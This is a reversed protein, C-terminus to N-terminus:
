GKVLAMYPLRVKRVESGVSLQITVVGSHEGPNKGIMELHLDTAKENKFIASCKLFEPEPVTIAM